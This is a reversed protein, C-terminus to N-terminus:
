GIRDDTILLGISRAYVPCPLIKKVIGAPQALYNLFRPRELPYKVTFIAPVEQAGKGGQELASLLNEQGCINSGRIDSFNAFGTNSKQRILTNFVGQM